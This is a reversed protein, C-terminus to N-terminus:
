TPRVPRSAPVAVASARRLTSRGEPGRSVEAFVCVSPLSAAWPTCGRVTAEIATALFATWRGPPVALLVELAGGVFEVSVSRVWGEGRLARCREEVAERLAPFSALDGCVGRQLEMTLVATSSQRGRVLAEGALLAALELPM